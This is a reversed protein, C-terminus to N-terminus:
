VPTSATLVADSLAPWARKSWDGFEADTLCALAVGASPDVWLFCGSRGFHGFTAPSNRTGTWHPQKGNRLEFGLGFDNPDYRGYGPLIGALGAFQVAGAERLLQASIREPALLERALVVLSELPAQVGSAPSGALPFGWTSAFVDAFSTGAAAAVAAGLLEFGGNSYIRRRGPAAIPAAGEFPLGSAHALLHRITSGPPGAADDLSLLGREVAELVCVASALKTV